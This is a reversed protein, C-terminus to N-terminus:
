DEETSGTYPGMVSHVGAFAGEVKDEWNGPTDPYSPKIDIKLHIAGEQAKQGILVTLQEFTEFHPNQILLESLYIM